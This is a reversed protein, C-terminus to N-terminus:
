KALLYQKEAYGSLACAWPDWQLYENGRDISILSNDLEILSIKDCVSAFDTPWTLREAMPAHDIYKKVVYPTAEDLVNIM